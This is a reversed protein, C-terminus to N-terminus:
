RLPRERFMVAKRADAATEKMFTEAAQGNKTLAEANAEAIREATQKAM